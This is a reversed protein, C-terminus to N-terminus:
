VWCVVCVVSVVVVFWVLHCCDVGYVFLLRLRWLAIVDSFAAYVFGFCVVGLWCLLCECDVSIVLRLLVLRCVFGVFCGFLLGGFWGLCCEIWLGVMCLLLFENLGFLCLCLWTVVILGFLRFWCLIVFYM